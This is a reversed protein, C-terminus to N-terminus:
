QSKPVIRFKKAAQQPTSVPWRNPSVGLNTYYAGEHGAARFMCGVELGSRRLDIKATEM